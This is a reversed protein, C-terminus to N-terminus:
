IFKMLIKCPPYSTDQTSNERMRDRKVIHELYSREVIAMDNDFTKITLFRDEHIRNCHKKGLQSIGKNFITDGAM